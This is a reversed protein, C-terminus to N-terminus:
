RRDAGNGCDGRGDGTRAGILDAGIAPMDVGGDHFEEAVGALVLQALERRQDLDAEIVLLLMLFQHEGVDQVGERLVRDRRGIIRVPAERGRRRGALIPQREVLADVGDTMGVVTKMEVILLRRM